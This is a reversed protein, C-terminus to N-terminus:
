APQRAPAHPAPGNMGHRAPILLRAVGDFSRANAALLATILGRRARMAVTVPM